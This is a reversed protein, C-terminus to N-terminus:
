LLKILFSNKSNKIKNIGEMVTKLADVDLGSDTEDLISLSPKLIFFFV